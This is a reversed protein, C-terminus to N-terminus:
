EAHASGRLAALARAQATLARASAGLERARDLARQADDLRGLKMLAWSRGLEADAFKPRASVIVDYEALATAADGRLLAVTALGVHDEVARPDAQLGSRYAVVAGDLDGRQVRVLGLAHWAEANRPDRRLAESLRPEALETEGWRAARLGGTLPGLPDRPAIEAARDYQELAEDYRHSLELAYGLEVWPIPSYPGVVKALAEAQEEARGLQGMSADVRILLRREPVAEPHKALYAELKKAAAEPQGKAVLMRAENGANPQSFACGFLSAAAVFAAFIRSGFRFGSM